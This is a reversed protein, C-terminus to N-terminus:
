SCHNGAAVEECSQNLFKKENEIIKDVKRKSGNAWSVNLFAEVVKKGIEIGIIQAGMTIIQANNSLQAREASYTDHALAARIGPYKNAAICVGIGTGCILIGRNLEGARIAQSVEFAVDPYDVANCSHCGYDIMEHETDKLFEKISEKFAYGNHDSGIGIKM